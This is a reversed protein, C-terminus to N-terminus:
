IGEVHAIISVVRRVAAHMQNVTVPTRSAGLTVYHTPTVKICVERPNAEFVFVEWAELQKFQLLLEKAAGVVNVKM